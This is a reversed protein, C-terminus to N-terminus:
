TNKVTENHEGEERYYKGQVLFMHRYSGDLHNMLAEHTGYEKIKGDELYVIKDCFKTSALRHSIMITTRGSILTDFKLYLDKEAIADLSATPEDLIM